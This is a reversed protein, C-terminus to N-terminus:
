QVKAVIGADPRNWAIYPSVSTAAKAGSIGHDKYVKVADWSAAQTRRAARTKQEGDNSRYYLRAAQDGVRQVV